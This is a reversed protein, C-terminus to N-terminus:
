HHVACRWGRDNFSHVAVATSELVAWGLCRAMDASWYAFELMENYGLKALGNALLRDAVWPGEPVPPAKSGAWTKAWTPASAAGAGIGIELLAGADRHRVTLRRGNGETETETVEYDPINPVGVAAAGGALRELIMTTVVDVVYDAVEHRPSHRMHRTMTTWHELTKEDHM